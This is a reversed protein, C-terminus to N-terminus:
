IDYIYIMQETVEGQSRCLTIPDRGIQVPPYLRGLTKLAEFRPVVWQDHCLHM